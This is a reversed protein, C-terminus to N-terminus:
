HLGISLGHKLVILWDRHEIATTEFQYGVIVWNLIINVSLKNKLSFEQGIM